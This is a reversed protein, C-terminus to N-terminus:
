MLKPKLYFRRLSRLVAGPAARFYRASSEPSKWTGLYDVFQRDLGMSIMWTRGGIRLAYPAVDTEVQLLQQLYITLKKKRTITRLFGTKVLSRSTIELLARTPCMERFLTAPNCLNPFYARADSMTKSAFDIYFGLLKHDRRAKLVTEKFARQNSPLKICNGKCTVITIAEPAFGRLTDPRLM